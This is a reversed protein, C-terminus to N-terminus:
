ESETKPTFSSGLDQLPPLGMASIVAKLGELAAPASDRLQESITSNAHLRTKCGALKEKTAKHKSKENSYKMRVKELSKQTTELEEQAEKVQVQLAEVQSRAEQLLTDPQPGNQEIQSLKIKSKHADDRAEELELERQKLLAEREEASSRVKLLLTEVAELQSRLKESPGQQQRKALEELLRAQEAEARLVAAEASSKEALAKRRADQEAQYAQAMLLRESTAFDRAANSENLLTELRGVRAQLWEASPPVLSEVYSKTPTPDLAYKSSTAQNSESAVSDAHPSSKRQRKVPPEAKSPEPHSRRPRSPPSLGLVPLGGSVSASDKIQDLYRKSHIGRDFAERSNPGLPHAILSQTTWFSDSAQRASSALVDQAM